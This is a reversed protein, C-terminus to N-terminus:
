DGQDVWGIERATQRGIVCSDLSEPMKSEGPALPLRGAMIETRVQPLRPSRQPEAYGEPYRPEGSADYKDTAGFTHLLEHAIVIANQATQGAQAYAHVVGVLGKRLGLSRDIGEGPQGQEYVLYMRIRPGEGPGAPDHRWTWLRLELSWLMIRVVGGNWPPEPPRSDLAPGLRSIVPRDEILQYRKAERAMFRDIASFDAPKLGAIYRRTEPLGDGNVPYIVLDVPELWYATSRRQEVTYAAAFLLLCLLVLVRLNRFTLLKM